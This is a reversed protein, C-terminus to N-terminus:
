QGEMFMSGCATKYQKKSGLAAKGVKFVAGGLFINGQVAKVARLQRICIDCQGKFVHQRM